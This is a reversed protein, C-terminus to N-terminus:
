FKELHIIEKLPRRRRQPPKESTYGIPIIALPRVDPPTNLIKRVLEEQFAGVWCAGLGMAHAALLLNEIAAATDQICYLHIGRGGYRRGSRTEDACVAIVVSAENIFAQDLSAASLQRKRQPDRVIVFDWPQLNGASPAHRAAEILREVQEESVQKREFTRISRRNKIADFVEM